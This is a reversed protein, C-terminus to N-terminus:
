QATVTPSWFRLTHVVPHTSGVAPSIQACVSMQFSGGQRAVTLWGTLETSTYTDDPTCGPPQTPSCRSYVVTDWGSPLKALDLTVPLDPAAGAYRRWGFVIAEPIQMSVYELEAADCCDLILARAITAPTAALMGNVEIRPSNPDGCFGTPDGPSRLDSTGGDYIILASHNCGLACFAALVLHRM